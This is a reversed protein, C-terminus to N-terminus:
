SSRELFRRDFEDFDVMPKAIMCLLTDERLRMVPMSQQLSVAWQLKARAAAEDLADAVEFIVRVGKEDDNADHTPDGLLVRAVIQLRDVNKYAEASVQGAADVAVDSLKVLPVGPTCFDASLQLLPKATGVFAALQPQAFVVEVRTRAPRNESGVERRLVARLRWNTLEVKALAGAVDTSRQGPQVGAAALFVADAVPTFLKMSM